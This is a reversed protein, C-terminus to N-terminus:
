TNRYKRDVYEEVIRIFDDAIRDGELITSLEGDVYVPARPEEATGPLSIGIDAHRSEGPGNVVCGMVAIEMEQVGPYKESWEKVREQLYGEVRAALEQFFTSSTRGCGPCATVQPAFVRLGMSQLIQRAVRVEGTRDGGPEPTLSVRVTDGIGEQLLVATGAASGVVGRTGMGAETLGLHIPYDCGAALERNVAIMDQVKSVKCSVVIRGGPLGAEEALRASGLVSRVMAKRIVASSDAPEETAANEEMLSSLLASDVSGWNAGIRVPKRHEVAKEIISIFNMDRSEGTGVNGPNIRYKALAEACAPYKELLLHGNYHFDGILPVGVGRGRLRQAIEPVAAAAEDTNVPIRVLESGAGALECVQEVTAEIDPTPTNTMSQVVVPADGGVTM